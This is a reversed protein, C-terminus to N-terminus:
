GCIGTTPICEYRKLNSSSQDCIIVATDKCVAPFSFQQLPTFSRIGPVVLASERLSVPPHLLVPHTASTMCPSSSQYPHCSFPSPNYLCEMWSHTLYIPLTENYDRKQIRLPWVSCYTHDMATGDETTDGRYWVRYGEPPTHLVTRSMRICM